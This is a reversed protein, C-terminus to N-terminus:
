IAGGPNRGGARRCSSRRLELRIPERVDLDGIRSFGHVRHMSDHEGPTLSRAKARQRIRAGFREHGEHTRGEREPQEAVEPPGAALAGGDQDTGVGRGEVREDVGSRPYADVDPDDRLVLREVGRARRSPEQGFRPFSVNEDAVAVYQGVDRVLIEPVDVLSRVRIRRQSEHAYRVRRAVADHFRPRIAAHAREDLLGRGPRGIVVGHVHPAYTRFADTKSENGSPGRDKSRSTNGPRSLAPALTTQETGPAYQCSRPVGSRSRWPCRATSSLRHRQGHCSPSSDLPGSTATCRSAVTSGDAWRSPGTTTPRLHRM